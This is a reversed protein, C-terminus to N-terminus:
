SIDPNKWFKKCSKAFKRAIEGIKAINQLKERFDSLIEDFKLLFIAFFFISSFMRLEHRFDSIECFHQCIKASIKSDSRHLPVYFKYIEFFRFFIRRSESDYSDM